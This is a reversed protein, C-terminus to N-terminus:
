MFSKRVAEQNYIGRVTAAGTTKTSIRIGSKRQREGRWAQSPLQVFTVQKARFRRTFIVWIKKLCYAM